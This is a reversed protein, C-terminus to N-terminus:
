KVYAKYNRNVYNRPQEGKSAISVHVWRTSGNDEFLLQDINNNDALVDFLDSLNESKLDAALGTLHQSNSVGGVATNLAPCRFGSTVIIPTGLQERAPDLVLECLRSLNEVNEFTPVNSISLKSATDSKVFESLTFYKPYYM